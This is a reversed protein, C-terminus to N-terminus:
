YSNGVKTHCTTQQFLLLQFPQLEVVYNKIKQQYFWGSIKLDSTFKVGNTKKKIASHSMCGILASKRMGRLSGGLNFDLFDHYTYLVFGHNQM